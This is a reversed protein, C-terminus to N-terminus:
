IYIDLPIVRGAVIIKPLRIVDRAAPISRLKRIPQRLVTGKEGLGRRFNFNEYIRKRNVFWLVNWDEHDPLIITRKSSPVRLYPCSYIM